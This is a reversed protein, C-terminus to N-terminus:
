ALKVPLTRSRQVSFLHSKVSDVRASHLIELVAKWDTSRVPTSSNRVGNLPVSREEQTRSRTDRDSVQASSLPAFIWALWAATTARIRPIVM